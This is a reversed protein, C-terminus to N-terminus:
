KVLRELIRKAKKLSNSKSIFSGSVFYDAGAKKALWITKPDMGGDVIVIVHTNHKKIQGVKKLPAKLFKAGYYGPHVTLVLVYDMYDIFGRFDTFTTEPKIAFAVKLNNKKLWNIFAEKFKVAEWQVIFYKIQRKKKLKLIYKKPNKVMLHVGYSFKTSLRLDFDLVKTPVFKGDAVDLHLVSSVGELKKLYCNLEKQDAAMVSPLIKSM